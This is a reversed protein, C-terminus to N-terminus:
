TSATPTQATMPNRPETVLEIGEPMGEVEAGKETVSVNVRGGGLNINHVRLETM